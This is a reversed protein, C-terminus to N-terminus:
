KLVGALPIVYVINTGHLRITWEGDVLQNAVKLQSYRAGPLSPVDGQAQGILVKVDHTM